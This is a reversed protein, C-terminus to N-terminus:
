HPVFIDHSGCVPARRIGIVHDDEVFGRDKGAETRVRIQGCFTDKALSLHIDEIAVPSIDGAEVTLVRSSMAAQGHPWTSTDVLVPACALMSQNHMERRDNM